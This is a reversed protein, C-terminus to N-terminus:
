WGGVDQLCLQVDNNGGRWLIGADQANKVEWDMTVEIDVPKGDVWPLAEAHTPKGRVWGGNSSWWVERQVIVPRTKPGDGLWCPNDATTGYIFEAKWYFQQNNAVTGWQEVVDRGDAPIDWPQYPAGDQPCDLLVGNFLTKVNQLPWTQGVRDDVFGMLFSWKRGMCERQDLREADLPSWRIDNAQAFWETYKEHTAMQVVTGHLRAGGMYFPIYRDLTTAAPTSVPPPAPPAPSDGGGGSGGGCGAILASSCLVASVIVAEILRRLRRTLYAKM